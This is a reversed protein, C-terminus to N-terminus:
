PLWGFSEGGSAFLYGGYGDVTTRVLRDLRAMAATAKPSHTAWRRTKDDVDVFGFTVTGTPRRPGPRRSRAAVWSRTTISSRRSWNVCGPGPEVGLQEVLHQRATRYAALADGQRGVRYLATM